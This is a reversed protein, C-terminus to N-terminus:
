KRPKWSQGTERNFVSYGLKALNKPIVYHDPEDTLHGFMHPNKDLLMQIISHWSLVSNFSGDTGSLVLTIDKAGIFIELSTHKGNKSWQNDLVRITRGFIVNKKNFNVDHVKWGANLWSKAQPHSLSNAWWARHIYASSPLLSGIIHEIQQFDFSLSISNQKLLYESLASYKRM